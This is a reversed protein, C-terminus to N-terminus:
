KWAKKIPIKCNAYQVADNVLQIQCDIPQLGYLVWVEERVLPQHYEHRVFSFVEKGFVQLKLLSDFVLAILHSMHNLGGHLEGQGEQAFACKCFASGPTALCCFVHRKKLILPTGPRLRSTVYQFGKSSLYFAVVDTEQYACAM